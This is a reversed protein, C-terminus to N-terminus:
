SSQKISLTNSSDVSLDFGPITKSADVTVAFSKSVDISGEGIMKGGDAGCKDDSYIDAICPAAASCKAIKLVM